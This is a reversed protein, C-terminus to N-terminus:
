KGGQRRWGRKLKSNEENPWVEPLPSVEGEARVGETDGRRDATIKLSPARSRPSCNDGSQGGGRLYKSIAEAEKDLEGPGKWFGLKKESLEDRELQQGTRKKYIAHTFEKGGDDEEEIRLRRQKKDWIKEGRRTAGYGM